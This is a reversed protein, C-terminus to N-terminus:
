EGRIADSLIKGKLGKLVHGHALAAVGGNEEQAIGKLSERGHLGKLLTDMSDNVAGLQEQDFLEDLLGYGIVVEEQVSIAFGM